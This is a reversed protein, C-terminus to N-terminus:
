FRLRQNLEAIMNFEELTLTPKNAEKRAKIVEEVPKASEIAENGIELYLKHVESEKWAQIGEAKKLLSEEALLNIKELIRDAAEYARGWRRWDELTISRLEDIPGYIKPTIKIEEVPAEPTKESPVKAFLDIVPEVPPRKLQISSIEPEKKEEQLPASPTETVPPLEEPKEKAIEELSIEPIKPAPQAEVKAVEEAIKTLDEPSVLKEEGIKFEEGPKEEKKVPEEAESPVPPALPGTEFKQVEASVKASERQNMSIDANIQTQDANIRTEIPPPLPMEEPEIQIEEPEGVIETPGAIGEALSAKEPIPKIEPKIKPKQEKLIKIIQDIKAEDYEMGGIKQPRKLVMRTEIEDRVDKLYSLAINKFRNEMVEDVFSLKAQDITNKVAQNYNIGEAIETSMKEKIQKVEEEIGEYEKAKGIEPALFSWDFREKLQNTINEAIKKDLFYDKELIQVLNNFSIDRIALRVVLEALSVKHQPYRNKIEHLIEITKASSFYDKIEPPLQNFKSFIDSIM